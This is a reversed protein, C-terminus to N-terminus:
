KAEIKKSKDKKKGLVSKIKKMSVTKVRKKEKPKAPSMLKPTNMEELREQEQEIEQVLKDKKDVISVIEALIKAEQEEEEATKEPRFGLQADKRGLENRKKIIQLWESMLGDDDSKFDGSNGM